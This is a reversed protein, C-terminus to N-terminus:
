KAGRKAPRTEGQLAVRKAPMKKAGAGRKRTGTSRALAGVAAAGLAVAPEGRPAVVGVDVADSRAAVVPAPVPDAHVGVHPALEPGGRPAASQTVEPERSSDGSPASRAEPSAGVTHVVVDEVRADITRADDHEALAAQAQAISDDLTISHTHETKKAPNWMPSLTKLAHLVLGTNPQVPETEVTDVVKGNPLAVQRTKTVRDGRLVAEFHRLVLPQALACARHGYEDMAVKCEAAFEPDRKVWQYVADPSVSCAKAVETYLGTDSLVSLARARREETLGIMPARVLEGRKVAGRKSTGSGTWEAHTVPKRPVSKTEVAAAAGNM